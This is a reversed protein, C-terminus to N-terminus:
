LPHFCVVPPTGRGPGSSACPCSPPACCLSLSLSCFEVAYLARELQMEDADVLTVAFEFTMRDDEGFWKMIIDALSGPPAAFSLM